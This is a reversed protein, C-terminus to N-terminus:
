ESALANEADVITRLHEGFRDSFQEDWRNWFSRFGPQLAFSRLVGETLQWLDPALVGEENLYFSQRIHNLYAGMLLTFQDQEQPTLSELDAMGKFWISATVPSLGIQLTLTTEVQAYSTTASARADRANNQLQITNQRIQLALYALTVLTAVAAILEGISGLDQITM